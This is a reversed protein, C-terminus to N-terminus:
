VQKLVEQTYRNNVIYNTLSQLLSTHNEATFTTEKELMMMQQQQQEATGGTVLRQLWM